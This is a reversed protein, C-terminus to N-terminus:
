GGLLSALRGEKQAKVIEEPSMTDLDAHTLQGTQGTGGAGETGTRPAVPATRLRPTAGVTEQVIAAIQETWDGTGPRIDDLAGRHALLAATLEPDAGHRAAATTVAQGIQLQRLQADRAALERTLQEPDPPSDGGGLAANIRSLTEQRQQDQEERGRLRTRYNAAEDRAKRIVAQAWDPLDEVRGQTSPDPTPDTPPAPAPPTPTDTPPAPTPDTPPAPTDDPMDEGKM